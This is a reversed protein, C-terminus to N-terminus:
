PAPITSPDLAGAQVYRDVLARWIRWGPAGAVKKLPVTAAEVEAFYARTLGDVITPDARGPAGVYSLLLGLTLFPRAEVDDRWTGPQHLRCWALYRVAGEAAEPGLELASEVLGALAGAPVLLDDARVLVLCSFLRAVHGRRDDPLRHSSLELVERPAWPLEAPLRRAVLLAEIGRRHEGIRMGHDLEAMERVITADLRRRVWDRLAVEDPRLDELLRALEM